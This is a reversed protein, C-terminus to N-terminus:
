NFNSKNLKEESISESMQNKRNPIIPIDTNKRQTNVNGSIYKISNNDIPMKLSQGKFQIPTDKSSQKTLILNNVLM